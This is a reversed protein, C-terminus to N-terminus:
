AVVAEIMARYQHLCSAGAGPIYPSATPCVILNRSDGFLVTILNEVQERIQEPTKEYMDAIQINGELCLTEGSLNKAEQPELDGLPPAEFPHLVDVGMSVFLDMVTKISGHCHVHVKGGMDHILDIIKRDYRVNFDSFDRRGHLPPVIYEQGAMDFFTGVRRHALFRLLDLMRNMRQEILAHLLDRSTISMIAFNESGFLRVIAGAPNGGLRVSVIGTDGAYRELEFFSDVSGDIEPAPLSLYNQVDAQTQLYYKEVYGPQRELGVLRTSILDGGPTAIKWIQRAFDKSYPEQGVLEESPNILAEANWTFKLEGVQEILARLPDYSEDDSIMASYNCCFVAPRDVEEHFYCRRLRERPTLKMTFEFIIIILCPM